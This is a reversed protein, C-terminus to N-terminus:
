DRIRDLCAPARLFALVIWVEVAGDGVVRQLANGRRLVGRGRHHHFSDPGDQAKAGNNALSWNNSSTRSSEGAISTITSNISARARLRLCSPTAPNHPPTPM